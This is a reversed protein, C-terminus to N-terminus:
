KNREDLEEIYYSGWIIISLNEDQRVENTYIFIDFTKLEFQSM